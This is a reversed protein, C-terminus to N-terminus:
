VPSAGPNLKRLIDACVQDHTLDDGPVVVDAYTQYLAYRERFLEAISQDARKSIGRLSFDGIRQEVTALSVDLFVVRGHHKLHAMAAASYVASGGTAIVHNEYHASLLVREEIRRLADHGDRDVIDQLSRGESAQILLDTDVFGMAAHKALLVGVTSKGSGPMGILVLNSQKAM